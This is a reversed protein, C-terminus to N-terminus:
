ARAYSFAFDNVGFYLSVSAKARAVTNNVRITELLKFLLEFETTRSRICVIDFGPVGMKFLVKRKLIPIPNRKEILKVIVLNEDSTETLRM